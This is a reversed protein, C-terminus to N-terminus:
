IQKKSFQQGTVHIINELLGIVTFVGGIIACSSTVFKYMPMREEQVVISIPSLDYKFDITPESGPGGEERQDYMNSHVTYKYALLDSTSDAHKLMKTVVKLYHVQSVGPHKALFPVGDLRHSTPSLLEMQDSHPMRTRQYRAVPEGFWLEHVTHSSNIMHVEHDHGSTHLAFRLTGPVKRVNLHGAVLCGEPGHELSGAAAHTLTDTRNTQKVYSTWQSDDNMSAFAQAVTISGKFYVLPAEDIRKSETPKPAKATPKIASQWTFGACSPNSGCYTQAADTSMRARYLDSGASLAGHKVVYQASAEKRAVHHSVRYLRMQEQVFHLLATDTREGTFLEFHVPDGDKYMRVTPYARVMNKACFAQQDVCDVQALRAHGHFHLDPIESATKLYVPEFRRCWICWPAFFNVVTLEHQKLFPVFSDATLAQSLNTDPPEYEDPDFEDFAGGHTEHKVQASVEAATRAATATAHEVIRGHSDLRWKLIDKSINHRNTGTMDSVDIGLFECPVQAMSLNFNVRLTEDRFEDVILQTTAKIAFYENLEFLFLTVMLVTGVLSIIMGSTSSMVLDDPVHKFFNFVKLGRSM